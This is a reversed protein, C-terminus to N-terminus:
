AGSVFGSYGPLGAAEPSRAFAIAQEVIRKRDEEKMESLLVDTTRTENRLIDNDLVMRMRFYQAWRFEAFDTPRKSYGFNSRVYWALGRYPDNRLDKIHTPLQAPQLPGGGNQDFLYVWAADHMAKWFNYEKLVSWNYLVEVVVRANDTTIGADNKGKATEWVARALHHHDTLCFKNDRGIVVPVPRTLLYATLDDHSKRRMSEVRAYVEDLGVACQTPHLESVKIQYLEGSRHAKGSCEEYDFDM